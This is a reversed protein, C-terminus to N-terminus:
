LGGPLIIDSTVHETSNKAGNSDTGNSYMIDANEITLRSTSLPLTAIAGGGNSNTDATAEYHYTVGAANFDALANFVSFGDVDKTVSGDVIEVASTDLKISKDFYAGTDRKNDKVSWSGVASIAKVILRSPKFGTVVKNGAVGTGIYTGIKRTASSAKSYMIYTGVANFSGNAWNSSTLLNNSQKAYPFPQAFTGSGQTNNMSLGAMTNQGEWNVVSDLKKLSLFEVKTGIPNYIEHEFIGSGQYLTMSENTVDNFAVIARKGHNTTTIMVKNYYIQHAVYTFTGNVRDSTGTSFGNPNFTTITQADLIEASTSSTLIINMAGRLTDVEIHHNANTRNKVHVKSSDWFEVVDDAVELWYTGNTVANGTSGLICKYLKMASRDFALNNGEATTYAVSGSYNIDKSGIGTVISQSSGNGTYLVTEDTLKNITNSIALTGNLLVSSAISSLRSSDVRDHNIRDTINM